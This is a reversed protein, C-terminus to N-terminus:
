KTAWLRSRFWHACFIQFRAFAFKEPVSLAESDMRIYVLDIQATAHACSCAHSVHLTCLQLHPFTNWGVKIKATKGIMVIACTGCATPEAM